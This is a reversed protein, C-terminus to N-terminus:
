TARDFRHLVHANIEISNEKSWWGHLGRLWLVWGM